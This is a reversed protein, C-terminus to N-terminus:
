KNLMEKKKKKKRKKKVLHNKVHNKKKYPGYRGLHGHHHRHRHERKIDLIPPGMPPRGFGPGM